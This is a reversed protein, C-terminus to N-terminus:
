VSYEYLDLPMSIIGSYSMDTKSVVRSLSDRVANSIEITSKSKPRTM